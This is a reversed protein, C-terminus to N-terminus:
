HVAHQAVVNGAYRGLLAGIAICAIALTMATSSAAVALTIVLGAVTGATAGFLRFTQVYGVFRIDKAM